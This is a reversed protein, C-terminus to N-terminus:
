LCSRDTDSNASPCGCPRVPCDSRTATRTGVKISLQVTPSPSPLGLAHSNSHWSQYQSQGLQSYNGRPGLYAQLEKSQSAAQTYVGQYIILLLRYNPVCNPITGRKHFPSIAPSDPSYPSNAPALQCPWNSSPRSAQFDCNLLLMFFVSADAFAVFSLM